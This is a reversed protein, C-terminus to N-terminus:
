FGGFGGFGGFFFGGFSGNSGYNSGAGGVGNLYGAEAESARMGTAVAPAVMVREDADAIGMASLSLAVVERRRMDLEPDPHVPYGFETDERVALRTREVVVKADHGEQLRAAIQKVHDEGDTTLWETDSVFEHEYMAFDSMEANTEQNQWVPDSLSGLSPITPRNHCGVLTCIMALMIAAHSVIRTIVNTKHMTGIEEVASKQTQDNVHNKAIL